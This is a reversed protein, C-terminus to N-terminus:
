ERFNIYQLSLELEEAKGRFLAIVSQLDDRNKGSVRVLDGQISAQVKLKADKVMAVLKKAKEAPIGEVVKLTQKYLQVGSEEPRGIEVNRLSIGRKALKTLVVERVASLREETSAKLLFVNNPQKEVSAKAGKFDYRTEIEKQSQHLANEMEAMNVQSVADFSPM